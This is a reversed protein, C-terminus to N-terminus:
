STGLLRDFIIAAAARVSLHNYGDARPSQIPELQFRAREHVEPALGWGTGFCILVPPGSEALRLRGDAYSLSNTGARAATTWLEPVEGEASLATLADDLAPVIRMSSLAPMRDPIRKGGSGDVWHDRIRQALTRQALVPHVVFFDTLGFSHSSRSIDHLDINTIASTVITAARDLVPHHLLACAVRRM